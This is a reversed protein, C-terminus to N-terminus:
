LYQAAARGEVTSAAGRLIQAHRRMTSDLDGRMLPSNVDRRMTSDLDRRMLPSNVDRRMTSDLDRRMLHVWRGQAAGNCSLDRRMAPSTDRRLEGM